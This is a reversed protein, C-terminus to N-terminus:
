LIKKRFREVYSQNFKKYEKKLQELIEYVIPCVEAQEIMNLLSGMRDPKDTHPYDKCALPKCEGLLCSGDVQLFDCPCHKTTFTNGALDPELYKSKFETVDLRLYEADREVEDVPINGYYEKCCNRCQNCDYVAFLEKHLRHVKEDFEDADANAKLFSRFAYNEIEKEEAYKKVEHPDLM